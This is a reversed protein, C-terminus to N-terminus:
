RRFRAWPNSSPEYNNNQFGQFSPFSPIPRYAPIYRSGVCGNSSGFSTSAQATGNDTSCNFTLSGSVQDDEAFITESSGSANVSFTETTTVGNITFEQEVSCAQGEDLNYDVKFKGEACQGSVSVAHVFGSQAALVFAALLIKKMNSSVKITFM